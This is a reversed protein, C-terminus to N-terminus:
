QHIGTSQRISTSTAHKAQNNAHTNTHVKSAGYACKQRSSLVATFLCWGRENANLDLVAFTLPCLLPTPHVPLLVAGRAYKMAAGATQPLPLKRPLMAPAKLIGGMPGAWSESHVGACEPARQPQLLECGGKRWGAAGSGCRRLLCDENQVAAELLQLPSYM